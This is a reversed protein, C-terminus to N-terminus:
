WWLRNLLVKSVSRLSRRGALYYPFSKSNINRFLRLDKVYNIDIREIEYPDSNSDVLGVKSSCAGLFERKVLKKVM